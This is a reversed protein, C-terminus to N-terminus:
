VTLAPARIRTIKGPPFPSIPCPLTLETKKCSFSLLPCIVDGGNRGAGGGWPWFQTVLDCCALPGHLPIM